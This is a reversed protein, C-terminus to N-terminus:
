YTVHLLLLPSSIVYLVCLHNGYLLLLVLKYPLPVLLFLLLEGNQNWQVAVSFGNKGEHQSAKFNTNSM